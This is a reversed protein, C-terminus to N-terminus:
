LKREHMMESPNLWGHHRKFDVTLVACSHLAFAASCPRSMFSVAFQCTREARMHLISGRTLRLQKQTFPWGSFDPAASPDSCIGYDVKKKDDLPTTLNSSTFLVGAHMEATVGDQHALLADRSNPQTQMFSVVFM